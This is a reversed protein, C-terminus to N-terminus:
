ERLDIHRMYIYLTHIVYVCMVCCPFIYSMSHPFFQFHYYMKVTYVSNRFSHCTEPHDNGAMQVKGFQNQVCHKYGDGRKSSELVNKDGWFSVGCGNTTVGCGWGGKEVVGVCM